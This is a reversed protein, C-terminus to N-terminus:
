VLEKALLDIKLKLEANEQTLREVRQELDNIYRTRRERSRRAAIRNRERRRLLRESHLTNLTEQDPSSDRKFSLSGSHASQEEDYSTPSQYRGEKHPLSSVTVSGTAPSQLHLPHALHLSSTSHQSPSLNGNSESHKTNGGSNSNSFLAALQSQHSLMHSHLSDVMSSQLSYQHGHDEPCMQRSEIPSSINSMCSNMSTPTAMYNGNQAQSGGNGGQQQQQQQQQQQLYGGQSHSVFGMSDDKLEKRQQAQQQKVKASLVAEGNLKDVTVVGDGKNHSLDRSQPLYIALRDQERKYYDQSMHGPLSHFQLQEQIHLPQKQHPHQPRHQSHHQHQHGAASGMNPVVTNM